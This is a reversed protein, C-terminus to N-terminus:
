AWAVDAARRVLPLPAIARAAADLVAVVAAPTGVAVLMSGPGELPTWAWRVEPEEGAQPGSATSVLAGACVLTGVARAGGTGAPGSLVLDAGDLVTTHVLLPTGDVVVQLGGAYRGGCQCHRGLVVVERLVAGAGAALEVHLTSELAAGDCVVIPEPTWYLGGGAGMRATVGGV